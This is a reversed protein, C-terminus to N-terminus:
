NVEVYEEGEKITGVIDWKLDCYTIDCRAPGVTPCPICPYGDFYSGLVVLDGKNNLIEQLKSIYTSLM